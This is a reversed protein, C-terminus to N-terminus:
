KMLIMKGIDTFSGTNLRYFYIGSALESADFTVDHFGATRQGDVLTKVLSGNISYVSLTVKGDVPLAFSITTAPNFPNPYNGKLTVESPLVVEDDLKTIIEFPDPVGDPVWPVFNEDSDDGSKSWSFGDETWIEDPYDGVRCIMEYNGAAYSGPVSFVVSPRSITGGPQFNNIARRVITTPAGGEYEIDLWGDYNVAMTGQNELFIGYYLNGGGSPVPSGSVYTLDVFLEPTMNPNYSFDTTFLYARGNVVPAVTPDTYTNWYVIEIGDQHDPREIGVTSYPNDYGAGYTETVDLYQFLIEGDGTPTPYYAPDYLIVQFTETVWTDDQNRMRSWEIIVRHNTAADNLAYVYGGSGTILDDWFPAILGPPGMSSPIPYNAFNAFAANPTTSLWGNSCVTIADMEEGYYQFTFPLPLVISMDQDEGSDYIGLQYGSGSYNPDIEVWNFVPAKPYLVDTNDFCYYGYEDPGQPDNMSKTGLMLSIVETQTAGTSSTFVVELDAMHGPPSNDGATLNFPNAISATTAGVAVTGFYAYNDNVTVNTDLSTVTASLSAGTKGGANRVDLVLDATEGPSLLTDSGTAYASRIRMEYSIVELEVLGDWSGQDTQTDLVLQIVHGNPCDASVALDLDDSSTATAGAGINPFTEYNDILTAFDESASVTVSVGTATTSSGFNKFVLPIEVTEGPNLIGDGDGSSSGSNDDDMTHDFYGVAVAAQVVDLSDVIPYFNQKTVTVKVNGASSVDLPMIVQGFADTMRVEHIDGDRYFCVLANEIPGVGTENVTLTVNNEGWNVSAPVACDMYQIAHTFLEVGPDGALANWKSYNTVSGPDNTQYANYLEMKGRVLANGAQTIEEDFIGAYIGVCVTNNFRTHTSSTATGVAAIAGKPTTPTGVNAFSEMFSGGSFGGTGCTITTVFPLKRGNTLNTINSTSFNEMGIWGRYNMFLVGDNIANVITSSVSSGGMWYWFTDVRTYQRDIMEAKIWRNTQVTSFGSYYSGAVLCGQQYWDDNATYPIKEYFLVKNLMVAAQYDNDAPIRGVAVDALIDGGDLQSYPHDTGDPYYGALAYNGDTDGLLLVFEPPITWTDYANQIINKITTTSSGPTFTEVTVSHGKRRKWDIFNTLVTNVLYNDNECVILYSGMEVEDLDLEDLNMVQENMLRKWSRSIPRMPRLPVNRLDNGEFHVTVQFRHAVTLERTAPNYRVPNMQIPVIRLGRLIAPEGSTAEQLPYNTDQAYIIPDLEAPLGRQSLVEPEYDQAPMLDINQLTTTELAQFEVRVGAQDPIALLRTFHPVEPNGLALHHGGGPIAFRDWKRGELIGEIRDLGPIRIELQVQQADHRTITVQPREDIIDSRLSIFEAHVTSV